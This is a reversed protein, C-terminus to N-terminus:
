LNSNGVLKENLSLHIAYVDWFAMSVLLPHLSEIIVALRVKVIKFKLQSPNAKQTNRRNKSALIM